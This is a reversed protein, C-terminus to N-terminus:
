SECGLEDREKILAFKASGIGFSGKALDAEDVFEICNSPDTPYLRQMITLLRKLGHLCKRTAEDGM